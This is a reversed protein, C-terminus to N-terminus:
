FGNRIRFEEFRCRASCYIHNSRHRAFWKKCHLCQTIYNHWQDNIAMFSIVWFLINDVLDGKPTLFYDFGRQQNVVLKVDFIFNEKCYREIDQRPFERYLNEGLTKFLSALDGQLKKWRSLTIKHGAKKAKRYIRELGKEKLNLFVTLAIIARKEGFNFTMIELLDNESDM